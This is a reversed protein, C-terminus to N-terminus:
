YFHSLSCNTVTIITITIATTIFTFIIVATEQAEGSDHPSGCAKCANDLVMKLLCLYQPESFRTDPQDSGLESALGM